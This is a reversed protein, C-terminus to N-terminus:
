EHYFQGEEVGMAQRLAVIEGYHYVLHRIVGGLLYGRQTITERTWWAMSEALRKPDQAIAQKAEYWARLRALAEAKDRPKAPNKEDYALHWLIDLICHAKPHPRWRLQADSLDEVHGVLMGYEADLMEVLDGCNYIPTIPIEKPM